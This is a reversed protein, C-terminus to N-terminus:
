YGEELVLTWTITSNYTDGMTGAYPDLQLLLGEGANWTITKEGMLDGIEKAAVVLDASSLATMKGTKPDIFVLAETLINMGDCMPMTSARLSWSAAAYSNFVTIGWGPPHDILQYSNSISVTGFSLDSPVNRLELKETNDQYVHAEVFDSSLLDSRSCIAYVRNSANMFAPNWDSGTKFVPPAINPIVTQLPEGGNGLVPVPTRAAMTYERVEMKGQFGAPVIGAVYPSTFYVTDPDIKAGFRTFVLRRINGNNNNIAFAGNTAASLMANKEPLAAGSNAGSFGTELNSISATTGTVAVTFPILDSNNWIYKAGSTKWCNVVSTQITVNTSPAFMARTTNSNEMIVFDPLNINAKTGM